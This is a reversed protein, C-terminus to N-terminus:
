DFRELTDPITVKDFDVREFPAEGPRGKAFHMVADGSAPLALLQSCVTTFAGAGVVNMAHRPDGDPSTRDALLEIWDNWDGKEPDPTDAEQFQRLYHNILPSTPDNLDHATIMSLGPPIPQCLITEESDSGQSGIEPMNGPMHLPDLERWVGKSTRVRFSPRSGAHRLWFADYRDAIILNFPRYSSPNLESLAEAAAGAEAHDLAELVLEGRSRKGAEPGLTGPRNLVAAIVGDNNIGLWSGGASIDQGAVVEPRDPWHRAPARWPRSDLEDRNAAMILPWAANPRRLIVLTCMIRLEAWSLRPLIVVHNTELLVEFNSSLRLKINRSHKRPLDFCGSGVLLVRYPRYAKPIPSRALAARDQGFFGGVVNTSPYPRVM